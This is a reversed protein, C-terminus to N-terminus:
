TEGKQNHKKKVKNAISKILLLDKSVEHIETRYSKVDGEVVELRRQTSAVFCKIEKLNADGVQVNAKLKEDTRASQTTLKDVKEGMKAMEERIAEILKHVHRQKTGELEKQLEIKERELQTAKTHQYDISKNKSKEVRDVIKNVIVWLLTLVAVCAGFFSGYSLFQQVTM